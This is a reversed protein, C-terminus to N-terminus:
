AMSSGPTIPSTSGALLRDRRLRSLRSTTSATKISHIGAQPPPLPPPPPPLVLGPVGVPELLTVMVADVGPVPLTIECETVIVSLM